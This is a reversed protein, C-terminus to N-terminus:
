KTITKPLALGMEAFNEYGAETVVYTATTGDKLEIWKQLILFDFLAAGLKGGLHDYCKKGTLEYSRM